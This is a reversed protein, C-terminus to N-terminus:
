SEVQPIITRLFRDIVAVTKKGEKRHRVALKVPKGNMLKEADFKSLEYDTLKHGSWDFYDNRFGTLGRPFSINYTKELQFKKGTSDMADLEVGSVLHKFEIGNEDKGTKISVKTFVGTQEGPHPIEMINMLKLMIQWKEKQNRRAIASKRNALMQM